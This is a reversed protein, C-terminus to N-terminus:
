SENSARRKLRDLTQNNSKISWVEPVADETRFVGHELADEACGICMDTGHEDEM